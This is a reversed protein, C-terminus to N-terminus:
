PNPSFSHVSYCDGYCARWEKRDLLKQQAWTTKFILFFVKKKDLCFQLVKILFVFNVMFKHKPTMKSKELGAYPSQQSHQYPYIKFPSVCFIFM